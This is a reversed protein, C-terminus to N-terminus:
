REKNRHISVINQEFTPNPSQPSSMVNDCTSTTGEDHTKLTFSRESRLM